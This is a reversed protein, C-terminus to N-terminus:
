PGENGCSDVAKVRYYWDTTNGMQNLDDHLLGGTEAIRTFPGQPSGARYVRYSAATGTSQWTLRVHADNVPSARLSGGVDGPPPQFTDDRVAVRVLNGDVLGGNNPGQGCSEDNEARVVYYLTVDNPATTDTYTLGGIGAAVLTAPSPVFGPDTSRYVAYTGSGGTGWAPAVKWSLKVGSDACGNVDVASHLGEFTPAGGCGGCAVFDPQNASKVVFRDVNWGSRSTASSIGGKQRFRVRLQANGDAYASIDLTQLSWSSESNGLPGSGWVMFWTGNKFAEVYSAAGGGAVNLWRRFKLQGRSLTSADIVPSTASQTVSPEYDGPLSGLGTLDHGLVRAGAFAAAPDPPSSGKGEPAGIQWEGELTWGTDTEFNDIFLGPIRSANFQFPAGGADMVSVAGFGDKSFARFYIRGCESLPSLTLSHSTSLGSEEVVNGLAPTTGWEVRGRGPEDTTWEVRASEDTIGVVRLGSGVPGACDADASDFSVAGVGTGDDADHYTVTLVDGHSAQVVGDGAVAPAAGIPVSGTFRSTNVGTETLVILEPETETSSTAEVTATDVETPSLNLDLDTLQVPLSDSCDVASKEVVVRGAHCSQLGNGLDGLTEFHFYQGDNDDLSTNAAGDTSEVAYWYVTCSRLGTLTVAHSTVRNANSAVNTPPKTEGWRVVSDSLEDTNWRVTGAVDTVDTTRVESIAPGVCDATATTERVIGSGGQGDDADVYRATIADGHSLGLLGDGTPSSGPTAVITGRFKSSGPPSETLVVTEPTTETDSFITADVTPAGVNADNVSIVITSTCSYKSKDLKISGAFPQPAVGVCNSVASECATNSGQAQVRYYVTFDNPLDVDTYATAPAAVTDVVNQSYDCGVDTRLILYNAANASATWSLSVSKSGATATLTPAALSPCSSTSRNSADSAAGCAIAHRNFAAFIAAAHPTGNNLNGDDDDANRFKTFWSSAGCGDSNPLACNFANGGSGQRSAWFLKETLQWASDADMGSAPLDRFALDFVAESPVYSECHVERGCPGGGGGCRPQTFNAPTAPTHSQRKDWDMDRIGTCELCTDGYGSCTGSEFFGRGVCSRREQIIAVVDAYAESPNDYGGGDNQDIGHGYEHHIVGGIEGTNRCGGGSKYFNVTGNWFANCTSNINVNSTLQQNVWTNAPLWYRTKEKVRDLHYFCSRSSATDGASHGSPVVCNSAGTALDLDDDCTASENVAGCNDSIRVYPGTLSTTVPDGVPSCDYVGMDGATITGGISVNVHPMPYGAIECGHDACNGDNSIPFVGGKVQAYRDDDYLAIVQGTTADVKGVWTGPEGAARLVFRWALRYVVGEGVKGAYRRDAAGSPPGAVLVQRAPELEAVADEPRIGMHLYLVERATEVGYRSEPLTGIQGWRDVGFATLRGRTVYLVLREAEVPIGAVVRDFAVVWHDADAAATAERDLVLESERIRFLTENASVFQRARAELESVEVREDPAFWPIGPGEVLLPAGSRRDLHVRFDGGHARGFAEWGARGAEFDPLQEPREAIVGLAASPDEIALRDFRSPERRPVAGLALGSAFFALLLFSVIARTRFM